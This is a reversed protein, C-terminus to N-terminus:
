FNVFVDELGKWELYWSISMVCNNCDMGLVELIIINKKM